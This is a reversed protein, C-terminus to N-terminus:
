QGTDVVDGPLVQVDSRQGAVAAPHRDQSQEIGETRRTIRRRRFYSFWWTALVLVAGVTFLRGLGTLASVRATLEVPDALRSGAPTRIEVVVPFVGNSRAEVPIDINNIQNPELVVDLDGEPFTLKDSEAHVVVALPTDGRNEVRLPIPAADGAITFSFSEPQVVQARVRAVDSDVAGVIAASESETLGTSLATRLNESWTVSRPDGIPLMSGIDAARLRATQALRVREDLDVSPRPDLELEVPAGDLFLSNTIDPVRGIQEFTFGPHQAVFISLERLVAPDPIGIDPTTLIMSRLAPDLQYRVASADAMLHVAREIPTGVADPELLRTIPDVVM